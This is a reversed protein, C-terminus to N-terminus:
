KTGEYLYTRLEYHFDVSKDIYFEAKKLLERAKELEAQLTTYKEEINDVLLELNEFDGELRGYNKQMASHYDKLEQM